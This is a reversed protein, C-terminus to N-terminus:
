PADIIKVLFTSILIIRSNNNQTMLMVYNLAVNIHPHHFKTLEKQLM